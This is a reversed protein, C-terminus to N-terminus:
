DEVVEGSGGRVRIGRDLLCGGAVVEVRTLFLEAVPFGRGRSCWAVVVADRISM